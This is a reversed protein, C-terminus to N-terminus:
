MSNCGVQYMPHRERQDNLMFIIYMLFENEGKQLTTAYLSSVVRIGPEWKKININSVVSACFGDVLRQLFVQIM